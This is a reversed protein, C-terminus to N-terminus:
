VPIAKFQLGGFLNSNPNYKLSNTGESADADTVGLETVWLYNSADYNEFSGDTVLNVEGIVEDDSESVPLYAFADLTIVKRGANEVCTITLTHEGDIELVGSDFILQGTKWDAGYCDVDIAEGDDISFSAIGHDANNGGYVKIRSGEFSYTIQEGPTRLYWENGLYDGEIFGDAGGNQFGHGSINEAAVNELVYDSPVYAFADIVNISNASAENKNGSAQVRITHMGDELEENVYIEQGKLWEANYCDVTGVLAGDLYINVIGMDNNVAGIVKIAKGAFTYYISEGGSVYWEDGNVNGEIYGSGGKNLFGGATAVGVQDPAANVTVYESADYKSEAFATVAFISTFASLTLMFALIFSVLVRSKRM